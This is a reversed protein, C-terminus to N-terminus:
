STLSACREARALAEAGDRAETLIKAANVVDEKFKAVQKEAEKLAAVSLWVGANAESVTKEWALAPTRFHTNEYMTQSDDDHSFGFRPTSTAMVEQPTKGYEVRWWKTKSDDM